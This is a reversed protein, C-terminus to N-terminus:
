DYALETKSKAFSKHVLFMESKKTFEWKEIFSLLEKCIGSTDDACVFVGICVSLACTSVCYNSLAIKLHM